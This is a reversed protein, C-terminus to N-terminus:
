RSILFLCQKTAEDQIHRWVERSALQFTPLLLKMFYGDGNSPSSSMSVLSGVVVWFDMHSVLPFVDHSILM